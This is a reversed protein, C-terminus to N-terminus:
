SLSLNIIFPETCNLVTCNNQQIRGGVPNLGLVELDMGPISVM